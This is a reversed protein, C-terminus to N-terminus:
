WSCTSPSPRPKRESRALRQQAARRAGPMESWFRGPKTITSSARRARPGWGRRRWRHHEEVEAAVSGDLDRAGEVSGVEAGERAPRQGLVAVGAHHLVVAVQLQRLPEQHVRRGDVAREALVQRAVAHRLERAALRLLETVHGVEPVAVAAAVEVLLVLVVHLIGLSRRGKSCRGHIFAASIVSATM